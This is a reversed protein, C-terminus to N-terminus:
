TGGGSRLRMLAFILGALGTAALIVWLFGGLGDKSPVAGGSPDISAAPVDNKADGDSGGSGGKKGAAPAGDPSTAAAFAAAALGDDGLSELEEVQEPTLVEDPTKSRDPSRNGKGDPVTEFYQDGEAQGPPVTTQAQAAAPIMLTLALALLGILTRITGAM